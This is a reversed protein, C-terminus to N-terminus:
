VCTDNVYYYCCPELFLETWWWPHTLRQPHHTSLFVVYLLVWQSTIM